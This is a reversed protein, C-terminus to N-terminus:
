IGCVKKRSFTQGHLSFIMEISRMMIGCAHRLECDYRYWALKEQQSYRGSRIIFVERERM